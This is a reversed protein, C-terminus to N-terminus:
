DQKEEYFIEPQGMGRWYEETIEWKEDDSMAEWEGEELGLDEVTDLWGSENNSHINAGSNINFQVKM